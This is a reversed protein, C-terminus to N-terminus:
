TSFNSRECLSIPRQPRDDWVGLSLTREPFITEAVEGEAGRLIVPKLLMSCLTFTKTNYFGRMLSDPAIRMPYQRETYQHQHQECYNSHSCANTTSQHGWYQNKISVHKLISCSRNKILGNIAAYKLSSTEEEVRM